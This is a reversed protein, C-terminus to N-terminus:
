RPILHGAGAKSPNPLTISTFAAVQGATVYTEYNGPKKRNKSEPVKEIESTKEIEFVRQRRQRCGKTGL